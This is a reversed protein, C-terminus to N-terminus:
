KFCCHLLQGKPLNARAAKEEETDQCRPEATAFMKRQLPKAASDRPDVTRISKIMSGLGTRHRGMARWGNDLSFEKALREQVQNQNIKSVTRLYGM